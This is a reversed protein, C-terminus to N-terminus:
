PDGGSRVVRRPPARLPRHLRRRVDGGAAGRRPASPNGAVLAYHHAEASDAFRRDLRVVAAVSVNAPNSVVSSPVTPPGTWTPPPTAAHAAPVLAAALVAVALRLSAPRRFM